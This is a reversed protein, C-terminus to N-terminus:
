ADAPVEAIRLTGGVLRSTKLKLAEMEARTGTDALPLRCFCPIRSDADIRLGFNWGNGNHAEVRFPTM